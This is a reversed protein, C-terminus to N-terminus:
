TSLITMLDMRYTRKQLLLYDLCHQPFHEFFQKCCVITVNRFLPFIPDTNSRYAFCFYAIIVSVKNNPRMFYRTEHPWYMQRIELWKITMKLLHPSSITKWHEALIHLRFNTAVLVFKFSIRQSSLSETIWIIPYFSELIM